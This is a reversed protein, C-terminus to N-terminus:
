WEGKRFQMNDFGWESYGSVHKSDQMALEKEYLGMEETLRVLELLASQSRLKVYDLGVMNESFVVFSDFDIDM